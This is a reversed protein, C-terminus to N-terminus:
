VLSAKPARELLERRRETEKKRLNVEEIYQELTQIHQEVQLLNPLILNRGLPMDHGSLESARKMEWYIMRYDTEDVYVGKLKQTKVDPCLREVVGYLLLEEVLRAWTERLDSFLDRLASRYEENGQSMTTSLRSQKRKILHLRSKVKKTFWPEDNEYVVGFGKVSDRQVGNTVLPLQNEAAADTIERFFPLNHTFVIVQRRAGEEVLRKAVTRMRIHDLSSVPDDVIIGDNSPLGAVDAMFCALALARQEGESLVQSNVADLASDLAIQVLSDARSSVDRVKFPIYGLGMNDIEARIRRELEVALSNRRLETVKLSIGQTGTAAQCRKLRHWTEIDNRRDMVVSIEKSLQKRALLEDRRASSESREAASMAAARFSAAEKALASAEELLSPRAPLSVSRVREFKGNGAAEVFAARRRAPDAVYAVVLKQNV